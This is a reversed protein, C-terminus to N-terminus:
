TTGPFFPLNWIGVHVEHENTGAAFINSPPPTMHEFKRKIQASAVDWCIVRTDFSSTYLLKGDASFRCGTVDNQHGQLSKELEFDSLKWVKAQFM